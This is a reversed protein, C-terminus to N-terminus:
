KFNEASLKTKLLEDLKEPNAKGQTLKMIQGIFFGFLKEKGARYAMVQEYNDRLVQDIINNLAEIDFSQALDEIKIITDADNQTLWMKEFVTKATKSNIIQKEINNILGALMTPSIPCREIPLNNKNLYASLDSMMWNVISKASKPLLTVTQEFFDAFQKDSVLFTADYESLSYQSQFRSLKQSPLEPLEHRMKEILNDSIVIPPLDPDPFYRYDNAEEKSRMSKTKNLQPDFLLTEQIITGGTELIEIQRKVEFNIAQEVFKFSNVNKIETRTGLKSTNKPKVSVNVDIRFSGEQM